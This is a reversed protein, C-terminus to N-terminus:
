AGLAAAVGLSLVQSGGGSQGKRTTRLPIAAPVNHSAKISGSVGQAYDGVETGVSTIVGPARQREPTVKRKCTADNPHLTYGVSNFDEMSPFHKRGFPMDVCREPRPRGSGIISAARGHESRTQPTARGAPRPSASRGERPLSPLPSNCESRPWEAASAMPSPTRSGTRRRGGAIGAGAVTGGAGGAGSASAFFNDWRVSRAPLPSVSRSAAIGIATAGGEASPIRAGCPRGSAMHFPLASASSWSRSSTASGGGGGAGGGLLEAVGGGGGAVSALAFTTRRPSRRQLPSVARPEVSCMSSRRPFSSCTSRQSAQEWRPEPTPTRCRGRASEGSGGLCSAMGSSDFRGSTRRVVREMVGGSQSLFMPRAISDESRPSRTGLPAM